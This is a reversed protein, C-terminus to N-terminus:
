DSTGLEHMKDIIEGLLSRIEEYTDDKKVEAYSFLHSEARCLHNMIEVFQKPDM